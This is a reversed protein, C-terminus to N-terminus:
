KMLRVVPKTQHLKRALDLLMRRVEDASYRRSKTCKRNFRRQAVM